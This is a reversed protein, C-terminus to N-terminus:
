AVLLERVTQLFIRPIVPKQLEAAAGLDGAIRLATEPMNGSTVIVALEPTQIRAIRLVDFGNMDPLGIDLVLLDFRNSNLAEVAAGGSSVGSVAYGERELLCRFLQLVQVEDDVVLIQRRGGGHPVAEHNQM